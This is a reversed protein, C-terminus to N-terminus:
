RWERRRKNDIGVEREDDVEQENDNKERYATREDETM